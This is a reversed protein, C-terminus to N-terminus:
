WAFVLMFFQAGSLVRKISAVSIHNEMHTATHTQPIRFNNYGKNPQTTYMPIVLCFLGIVCGVSDSFVVRIKWHPSNSACIAFSFLTDISSTRGITRSM